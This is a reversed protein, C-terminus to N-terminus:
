RRVEVYTAGSGVVLAIRGDGDGDSCDAEVPAPQDLRTTCVAAAGPPVLLAHQRVAGTRPLWLVHLAGRETAFM